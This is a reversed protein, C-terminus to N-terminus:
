TKGGRTVHAQALALPSDPSAAPQPPTAPPHLPPLGGLASSGQRACLTTPSPPLGQPVGTALCRLASAQVGAQTPPAWTQDTSDRQARHRAQQHLPAFVGGPACWAHMAPHHVPWATTPARQAPPLPHQTLPVTIALHASYQSALPATLPHLVLHARSSVCPMTTHTLPM